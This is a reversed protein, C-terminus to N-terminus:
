PSKACRFGFVPGIITPTTGLRNSVRLEGVGEYWSGGRAVRAAGVGPGRPNNAEARAYADAAYYDSCWEWVNGAMDYLGYGNPRHSGVPTTSIKMGDFFGFTAEDPGLEDGNPYPKGELGGRAAAEWESETALRKGAWAAYATADNWTVSAVPHDGRGRGAYREWQGEAQYGTAAVFRAFEANTVEYRDIYFPDLVVRHVPQEDPAGDDSGITYTGGPVLVMGDPPAGTPDPRPAVTAPPAGTGASRGCGSAALVLAAVAGIGLVRVGTRGRKTM